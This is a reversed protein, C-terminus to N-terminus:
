SSRSRPASSPKKGIMPSRCDACGTWGITAPATASSGAHRRLGSAFPEDPGFVCHVPRTLVFPSEHEILSLPADTTLRIVTSEDLYRIHNSGISHRPFRKATATRRGCGSRLERCDRFRSSSAFWSRRGFFVDSNSFARLLIRSGCRAAAGTPSSRRSSPPTACISPSFISWTTSCSTRSARRKMDPCWGASSRTATSTRSAGGCSRPPLISWRPLEATASSRSTLDM